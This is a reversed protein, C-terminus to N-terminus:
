LSIYLVTYSLEIIELILSLRPTGAISTFKGAALMDFTVGDVQEETVDPHLILEDIMGRPNQQNM